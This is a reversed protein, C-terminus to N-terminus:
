NADDEPITTLEHRILEMLRAFEADSVQNEMRALSCQLCNQFKSFILTLGPPYMNPPYHVAAQVDRDLFRTFGNLSDGTDSFFFSAMGGKSPHAVIRAYMSIPLYRSIDMLWGFRTPAQDRMLQMGQEALSKVSAKISGLAELPIRYFLFTVQNGILPGTGGRKRRDQPIPLSVDQPANGRAISIQHLARATVALYFGSRNMVAGAAVAAKDVAATEEESLKLCFHHPKPKQKQRTHLTAFPPHSTEDLFEKQKLAESMNKLNEHAPPPPHVVQNAETVPLSGGLHQILLEAGHADTLSHHWTFMLETRSKGLVLEILLPSERRPNMRIPRDWFADRVFVCPSETGSDVWRPISFARGGRLRLRQLWHFVENDQLHQELQEKTLTGKLTLHLTCVNAYGSGRRMMHDLTLLFYDAGNLCFGSPLEM